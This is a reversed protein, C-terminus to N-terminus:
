IRYYNAVLTSIATQHPVNPITMPHSFSRKERKAVGKGMVHKKILKKYTRYVGNNACVFTYQVLRVEVGSINM